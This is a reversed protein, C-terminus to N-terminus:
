SVSICIKFGTAFDHSKNVSPRRVRSLVIQQSQIDSIYNNNIKKNRQAKKNRWGKEGDEEKREYSGRETGGELCFLQSNAGGVDALKERLPFNRSIVSNYGSHYAREYRAGM